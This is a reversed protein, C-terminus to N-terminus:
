KKDSLHRITSILNLDFRGIGKGNLHLGKRGLHAEGINNNDMIEINVEERLIDNLKKITLMAKANDTRTIPTSFIIKCKPLKEPICLKLGIFKDLIESSTSTPANNTGVHLIVVSPSKDILPLLFSHMDEITAGPFSRVKVQVKSSLRKEEIGYLISDGVVLMTNKNWKTRSVDVQNSKIDRKDFEHNGSSSIVSKKNVKSNYFREKYKNRVKCLQDNLRVKNYNFSKAIRDQNSDSCNNQDQKNDSTNIIAEKTDIVSPSAPNNTTFNIDTEPSPNQREIIKAFVALLDSLEKIENKLLIKKKEMYELRLQLWKSDNIEDKITKIEKLVRQLHIGIDDGVCDDTGATESVEDPTVSQKGRDVFRVSESVRLHGVNLVDEKILDSFFKCFDPYSIDFHKVQKFINDKSERKRGRHIEEVVNCIM